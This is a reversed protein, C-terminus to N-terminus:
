PIEKPAEVLWAIQEEWAEDEQSIRWLDAAWLELAIRTAKPLKFIRAALKKPAVDEHQRFTDHVEVAVHSGLLAGNDAEHALYLGNLAALIHNVEHRTFVGRITELAAYVLSERETWIRPMNRIAEAITEGRDGAAKEIRAHENESIRIPALMKERREKSM